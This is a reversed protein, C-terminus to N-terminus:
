LSGDLLFNPIGPPLVANQKKGVMGLSVIVFRRGSVDFTDSVLVRFDLLRHCGSEWNTDCQGAEGEGGKGHTL